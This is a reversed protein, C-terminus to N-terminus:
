IYLPYISIIGNLVPIEDEKQYEFAPTIQMYDYNKLSYKENDKPNKIKIGSLKDLEIYFLSKNKSYPDAILISKGRCSYANVYHGYQRKLSSDKQKYFGINLIVSRGHQLEDCINLPKKSKYKKEVKRIGYYKIDTHLQKSLLYNEIASILNQATTGYQDTKALIKMTSVLHETDNNTNLINIVANAASVSGCSYEDKQKLDSFGFVFCSVILCVIVFFFRKIMSFLLDLTCLIETKYLM